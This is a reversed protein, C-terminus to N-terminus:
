GKKREDDDLNFQLVIGERLAMALGTGLLSTLPISLNVCLNGAWPHLEDAGDCNNWHPVAEQIQHHYEICDLLGAAFAITGV